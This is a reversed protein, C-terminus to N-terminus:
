KDDLEALIAEAERSWQLANETNEHAIRELLGAMAPAQAVLAMNAEANPYATEQAVQHITGGQWGFYEMLNRTRAEPEYQM